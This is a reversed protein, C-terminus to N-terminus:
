LKEINAVPYNTFSVVEEKNEPRSGLLTFHSWVIDFFLWTM